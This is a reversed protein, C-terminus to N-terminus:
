KLVWHGKERLKDALEPYGPEVFIPTKPNYGRLSEVISDQSMHRRDIRRTVKVMGSNDVTLEYIKTFGVFSPKIWIQNM